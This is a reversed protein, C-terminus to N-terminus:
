VVDKARDIPVDGVIMTGRGPESQIALKGGLSELRERMGILGLGDGNSGTSEFGDGDDKISLHVNDSSFVLRVEVNAPRAHRLANSLAEQAVRLLNFEVDPASTRLMGEVAFRIDINTTESAERVFRDLADTLGNRLRSSPRLAWMSRRAETLGERALAQAQSIHGHSEEPKETLVDKAAELQIVVGAFSQALTDHIERAIRNREELVAAQQKKTALRTMEVALTVQHALARTLESTQKHFADAVASNATLIGVTRDGFVLPIGMWSKVGWKQGWDRLAPDWSVDNSFFPESQKISSTFPWWPLKSVSVRGSGHPHGLEDPIRIKGDSYNLHMWVEQAEQDFFWLTASRAELQEAIVQLVKGIFEDLEPEAALLAVTKALAGSQGRSVEEARKRDLIEAQLSENTRALEEAQEASTRESATSRMDQNTSEMEAKRTM